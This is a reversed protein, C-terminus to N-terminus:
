KKVIDIGLFSARNSKVLVKQPGQINGSADLAQFLLLPVGTVSIKSVVFFHASPEIVVEQFSDAQRLRNTQLYMLGQDSNAFVLAVIWRSSRSLLITRGDPLTNSASLAPFGDLVHVPQAISVGSEDLKQSYIHLSYYDDGTWFANRGDTALTGRIYYGHRIPNSSIEWARSNLTGSKDVAYAELAPRRFEEFSNVVLFNNNRKQTVKLYFSNEPKVQTTSLKTVKLSKEDILASNIFGDSGFFWLNLKGAQNKSITTAFGHNKEVKMILTPPTVVDGTDDIEMLYKSIGLSYTIWYLNKNIAAGTQSGAIAFGSMALVFLMVLFSRM